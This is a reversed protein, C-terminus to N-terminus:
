QKIFQHNETKGNSIISLFYVGPNIENIAWSRQYAGMYQLQEKKRWVTQGSASTIQYIMAGEPAIFDVHLEHQVPNPYLKTLQLSQERVNKFLKITNSYTIIGSGEIAKIRYFVNAGNPKDTFSYLTNESARMTGAIAFHVADTSIEIELTASVPLPKSYEWQLATNNGSWTGRLLFKTVPLVSFYPETWLGRGHTAAAILGDSTRIRLM